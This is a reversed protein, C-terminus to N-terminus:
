RSNWEVLSRKDVLGSGELAQTVNLDTRLAVEQLMTTFYPIQKGDVTSNGGTIDVPLVPNQRELVIGVVVLQYVVTRLEVVQYGPVLTLNQLTAVGVDTGNVSMALTVDGLNLTMVTPNVIAAEGIANTGDTQTENLVHFSLLAFQQLHDFGLSHILV